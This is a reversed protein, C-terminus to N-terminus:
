CGPRSGRPPFWDEAARLIAEVRDPVMRKVCKYAQSSLLLASTYWRVRAEPWPWPVVSSYAARFREVAGAIGEADTKSNLGAM